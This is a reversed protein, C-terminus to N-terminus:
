GAARQRRVVIVALVIGPIGMASAYVFFTVWDTAEVIFGSFGGIIKGPLTMLSSFLAYQTATYNVNTLGSLYAIFVTGTFGAAFNDASITIILFWLESGVLAMGVFFLNTLALIVAGFVLPGGLGFRAIAVGGIAAGTLTVIIGFLKTVSAIEPLSFGIDIYFPNAMVGLVMDTVRYFGIFILLVLAWEGNRRFFDV